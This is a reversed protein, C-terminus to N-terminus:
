NLKGYIRKSVQKKVAKLWRWYYGEEPALKGDLLPEGPEIWRVFKKGNLAEVKAREEPTKGYAVAQGKPDGSLLEEIKEGAELFYGGQALLDFMKLVVSKKADRIYECLEPGQCTGLLSMKKGFSGKQKYIIFADALGDPPQDTDKLFVGTYAKLGEASNASLDLGMKTYTKSYNDWLRELNKQPIQDLSVDIWEGSGLDDSVDELLMKKLSYKGNYRM